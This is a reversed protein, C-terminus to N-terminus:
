RFALEGAQETRENRERLRIRCPAFDAIWAQRDCLAIEISIIVYPLDAAHRAREDLLTIQQRLIGLSDNFFGLLLSEYQAM